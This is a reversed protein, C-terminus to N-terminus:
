SSGGAAADLVALYNAENARVSYRELVTKRGATGLKRRLGPDALLRTLRDLWEDPGRVLFGNRGDDIIKRNTGLREAVVPIELAMYQLAKLGSKGLVWEEDPLPYVGIDIESLDAVETAEIWPKADVDIGHMQFHPDGIVRLRVPSNEALRALTQELLKLYPSTSHSGSWGIVLPSRERHPRPHYTDTNITSPIDTVHSNFGRAYEALYETCVVVQSAATMLQEVRDSRRLRRMFPNAGSGHPLHVLDDIDYVFPVGSAILREEFVPPGLPAIGLHVYVLDASLWAAEQERRRVLARQLATAKAVRLGPEYLVQWAAEDWFPFVDVDYGHGAWSEFYQEYKLRQSPAHGVPHPCVVALRM